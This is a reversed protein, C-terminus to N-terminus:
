QDCIQAFLNGPKASSISIIRRCVNAASALGAEYGEIYCAEDFFIGTPHAQRVQDPGQPLGIVRSENKWIHLLKSQEPSDRYDTKGKPLAYRKRLWEPQQDYLCKTYSLLDYATNETKSQVVWRSRQHFQADWTLVGMITWSAMMERSKPIVTHPDPKHEGTELAQLAVAYGADAAAKRDGGSIKNAEEAAIAAVEGAVLMAVVLRLHHAEKPFPKYEEVGKERAQEDFTKTCETLWFWPDKACRAAIKRQELEEKLRLEEILQVRTRKTL